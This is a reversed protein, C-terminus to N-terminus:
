KAQKKYVDNHMRSKIREISNIMVLNVFQFSGNLQNKGSIRKQM